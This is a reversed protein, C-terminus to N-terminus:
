PATLVFGCCAPHWCISGCRIFLPNIPRCFFSFFNLVPRWMIWNRAHCRRNFDYFFFFFLRTTEVSIRDPIAARTFGGGPGVVVIVVVLPGLSLSLFLFCFDYIIIWVASQSGPPPPPWKGGCVSFLSAVGRCLVRTGAVTSWFSFVNAKRRRPTIESASPLPSSECLSTKKGEKKWPFLRFNPDKGPEIWSTYTKGTFSKLM